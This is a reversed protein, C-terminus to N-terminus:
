QPQAQRMRQLTYITSAETPTTIGLSNAIPGIWRSGHTVTSFQAHKTWILIEESCVCHMMPRILLDMLFRWECCRWRSTVNRPRRSSSPALSDTMIRWCNKSWNIWTPKIGFRTRSQPSNLFLETVCFVLIIDDISQFKRSKKCCEIEWVLSKRTMREYFCLNMLRWCIWHWNVRKQSLMETHRM